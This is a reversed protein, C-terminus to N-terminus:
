PTHFLLLHGQALADYSPSHHDSKILFIIILTVVLSSLYTVAKNPNLLTKYLICYYLFLIISFSVTAQQFQRNYLVPKSMVDPNYHKVLQRTIEETYHHKYLRMHVSFASLPAETRSTTTSKHRTLEGSSVKAPRDYCCTSHIRLQARGVHTM